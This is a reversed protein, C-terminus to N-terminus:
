SKIADPQANKIRTTPQVAIPLQITKRSNRQIRL